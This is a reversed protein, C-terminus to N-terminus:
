YVPARGDLLLALAEVRSRSVRGHVRDGECAAGRVGVIDPGIAALEPLDAPGLSGALACLLGHERCAEVFSRLTADDLWHFLGRGDKIATDLLCGRAGVAQALRPLELPAPSGARRFDAFGAVILHVTDPLSARVVHLAHLARDGTTDCLGIKVFEVGCEAALSAARTVAVIEGPRDGLAVSVPVNRPTAARVERVSAPTAAGLAGAAPDKVDIIHAGGAVAETAEAAGTVSVLLKM